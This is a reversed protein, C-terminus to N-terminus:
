SNMCHGQQLLHKVGIQVIFLELVVKRLKKLIRLIKSLFGNSIQYKATASMQTTLIFHDLEKNGSTWTDSAKKFKAAM